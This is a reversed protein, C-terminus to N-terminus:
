RKAKAREFQEREYTLMDHEAVYGGEVPVSWTPLGQANTHEPKETPTVGDPAQKPKDPAAYTDVYEKIDDRQMAAFFAEDQGTLKVAYAKWAEAGSGPGSDPPRKM